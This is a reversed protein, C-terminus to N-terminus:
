VAGPPKLGLEEAEGPELFELWYRSGDVEDPLAAYDIVNTVASARCRLPGALM